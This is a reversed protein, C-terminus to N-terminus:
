ENIHRKKYVWLQWSNVLNQWLIYAAPAVSVCPELYTLAMWIALVTNKQGLGQAGSVADGYRRGIKKGIAFLVLCVIAAGISLYLLEVGSVTSKFFVFSVSKGVVICLSVSWLWFTLGAHNVLTKHVRPLFRKLLLALVLPGLLLPVVKMAITVVSMAFSMGGGRMVTFALPALLAVFLNSVLSFSVLRSMKGGLMSTIVPAATATPCFVCIFLGQAVVDNFGRLALWLLAAGVIQVLLLWWIEKGFRIQRIDLRCFTITLMAFIFWILTPELASLYSHFLAGLVIAVPLVWPKLNQLNVMIINEDRM